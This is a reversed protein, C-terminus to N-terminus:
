FAIANIKIVMVVKWSVTIRSLIEYNRNVYDDKKRIFADRRKNLSIRFLKCESDKLVEHGQNLVFNDLEWPKM